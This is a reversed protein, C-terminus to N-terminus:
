SGRSAHSEPSPGPRRSDFDLTGVFALKQTKKDPGWRMRPEKEPTGVYVFHSIHVSIHIYIYICM